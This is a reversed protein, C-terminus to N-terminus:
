PAPEKLLKEIMEGLRALEPRSSGISIYRVAGRRDILVATPYINVGYGTLNDAGREAVAVAYDLKHERAFKRLFALKEDRTRGRSENTGEVDTLGIVSLGDDAWKRHWGRLTPFVAICPGCWEYWFDILVVRGRQTALTSPQGEIWEAVTLDPPAARVEPGRAVLDREADDKKDPYKAAILRYLNASPLDLALRFMDLVAARAEDKLKAASYAEVLTVGANFVWQERRASAPLTKRDLAKLLRFAERAREVALETRKARLHALGLEYDHQVLHLPVQPEHKLYESRVREAEDAQKLQAAYVVVMNRATQAPLGEAAPDALFRRMAALTEERKDALNYLRGLHFLDLGSLAPRAALQAAHRAALARQEEEIKEFDERGLRRGQARLEERRRRPYDQASEYLGAASEAGAPGQAAVGGADVPWSAAVLSAFLLCFMKRM